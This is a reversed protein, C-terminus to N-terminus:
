ESDLARLYAVAGIALTSSDSFICLEKSVATSQSFPLYCRPMQLQELDKLSNRWRNWEEEREAPLPEDWDNQETTLERLLAKGQMTIPSVFGLPDYLSNVTALVGQTRSKSQASTFHLVTM